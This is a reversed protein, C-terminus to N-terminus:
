FSTLDPTPTSKAEGLLRKVFSNAKRLGRAIQIRELRELLEPEPTETKGCHKFVVVSPVISETRMTMSCKDCSAEIYPRGDYLYEKLKWTTGAPVSIPEARAKMIANYQKNLDNSM